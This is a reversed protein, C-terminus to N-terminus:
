VRSFDFSMVAALNDAGTLLMLLRDLGLAIGACDPLGETLAQLLLTDVPMEAMGLDRRRQNEAAFRAAQQPAESLEYFGNALELPGVFVEFRHALRPDEVNIRALAAQSAPYDYLFTVADAPFTSTVYRSLLWDLWMDLAEDDMGQPIELQRNEMVARVAAVDTQLPDIGLTEVFAQRYSIRRSARLSKQPALEAFLQQLLQETEDMLRRDDFGIRYWELMSFEPSHYRGMEDDRFVKCIQYIDRGHAALMRKMFFEPSTQLYLNEGNFRTSFSHLHPDTIAARSMLPTEVELVDRAAFFARLNHLM